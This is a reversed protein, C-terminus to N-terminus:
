LLEKMAPYLPWGLFLSFSFLSIIFITERDESRCISLPELLLRVQYEWGFFCTGSNNYTQKFRLKLYILNFKLKPFFLWFLGLVAFGYGGNFFLWFLYELENGAAEPYARVLNGFAKFQLTANEGNQIISPYVKKGHMFMYWCTMCAPAVPLVWPIRGWISKEQLACLSFYVMLAPFIVALFQFNISCAFTAVM